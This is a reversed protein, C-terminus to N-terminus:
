RGRRRRGRGGHGDVTDDVTDNEDDLLDELPPIGLDNDSSDGSGNRTCGSVSSVFGSRRGATVPANSNSM